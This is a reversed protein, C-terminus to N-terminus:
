LCIITIPIRFHFTFDANCNWRAHAHSSQSKGNWLAMAHHSLTVTECRAHHDLTQLKVCRTRAHHDLTATDHVMCTRMIISLQLVM